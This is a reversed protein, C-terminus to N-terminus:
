NVCPKLNAIKIDNGMMATHLILLFMVPYVLMHLVKWMKGLKKVSYNNSTLLLPFLLVLSAFGFIQFVPMSEPIGNSIISFGKSWMYHTFAMLFMLIGLQRRNPLLINQIKKLIGEVKFRQLIGAVAILWFVYISLKGMWAGALTFNSKFFFLSIALITLNFYILWKFYLKNNIKKRTMNKLM